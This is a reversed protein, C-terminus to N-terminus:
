RALASTYCQKFGRNNFGASNGEGCLFVWMWAEEDEKTVCKEFKEDDKHESDVRM